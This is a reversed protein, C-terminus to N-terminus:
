ASGEIACINSMISSISSISLKYNARVLRGNNSLYDVSANKLRYSEFSWNDACFKYEM